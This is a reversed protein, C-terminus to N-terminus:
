NKAASGGKRRVGRKDNLADIGDKEEQEPALERLRDLTENLTKACQGKSTASNYPHDLELALRLAVAAPGSRALEEDRAAIDALDREVAEVVESRPCEDLRGFYEEAIEAPMLILAHSRKTGFVSIVRASPAFPNSARQDDEAAEIAKIVEGRNPLKDAGEVGRKTAEKNLVDRSLKKLSSL